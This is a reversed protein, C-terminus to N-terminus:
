SSNPAHISRLAISYHKQLELRLGDGCLALSDLAPPGMPSFQCDSRGRSSTLDGRCRVQHPCGTWQDGSFISRRKWDAIAPQSLM